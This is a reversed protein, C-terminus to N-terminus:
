GAVEKNSLNDKRVRRPVSPSPIKAAKEPSLEKIRKPIIFLEKAKLSKSIKKVIPKKSEKVIPLAKPLKIQKNVTGDRKNM